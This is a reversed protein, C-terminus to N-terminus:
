TVFSFTLLYLGLRAVWQWAMWRFIYLTILVSNSTRIASFSLLNSSVTTSLLAIHFHDCISQIYSVTESLPVNTFLSTVDFSCLFSDSLDLTRIRNVFDFSDKVTSSSVADRVPRLVDALFQALRHTPTSTMSLIPCLPVGEKHTKPLGYLRPTHSGVPTLM